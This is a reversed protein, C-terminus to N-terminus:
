MVLYNRENHGVEKWESWIWMLLSFPGGEQDM